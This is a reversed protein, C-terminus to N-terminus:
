IRGPPASRDLDEGASVAHLWVAGPATRRFGRPLFGLRERFNAAYKRNALIRLVFYLFTVPVFFFQILRYLLIIRM